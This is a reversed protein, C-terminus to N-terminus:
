LYLPVSTCYTCYKVSIIYTMFVQLLGPHSAVQILKTLCPLLICTPCKHCPMDDPHNTRWVVARIGCTLSIVSILCCVDGFCCRLNCACHYRPDIQPGQIRSNSPKMPSRTSANQADNRLVPIRYQECCTARTLAAFQVDSSHTTARPAKGCPCPDAYHCVNDFDPLQLM